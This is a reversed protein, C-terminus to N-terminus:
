ISHVHYLKIVFFSSKGAASDVQLPFSSTISHFFKLLIACIHHCPLTSPSGFSSPSLSPSVHYVNIHLFCHLAPPHCHPHSILSPVSAAIKLKVWRFFFILYISNWCQSPSRIITIVTPPCITPPCLATIPVSAFSALSLQLIVTLLCLTLPSHHASIYSDKSVYVWFLFWSINIKQQQFPPQPARFLTSSLSCVYSPLPLLLCLHRPLLPSGLWLLSMSLPCLHHASDHHGIKLGGYYSIYVISTMITPIPLSPHPCHVYITIAPLFNKKKKQLSIYQQSM